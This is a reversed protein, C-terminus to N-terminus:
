GGKWGHYIEHAIVIFPYLGTMCAFYILATEIDNVTFLSSRKEDQEEDQKDTNNNDGHQM